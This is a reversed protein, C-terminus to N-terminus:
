RVGIKYKDLVRTNFDLMQMLSIKGREMQRRSWSLLRTVRIVEFLQKSTRRHIESVAVEHMTKVSENVASEIQARM